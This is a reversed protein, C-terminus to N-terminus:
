IKFYDHAYGIRKKLIISYVIKLYYKLLVEIPNQNIHMQIFSFKLAM